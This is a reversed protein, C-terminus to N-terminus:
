CDRLIASRGAAASGSTAPAPSTAESFRSIKWSAPSDNASRSAETVSIMRSGSRAWIGNTGLLRRPRALKRPITSGTILRRANSCNGSMSALSCVRTITIRPSAATPKTTSRISRRSASAACRSSCSLAPAPAVSGASSSPVMLPDSPWLVILNNFGDRSSLPCNACSPTAVVRVAFLDGTAVLLGAAAGTWASIESSLKRRPSCSYASGSSRTRSIM